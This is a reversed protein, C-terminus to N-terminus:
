LPHTITISQEQRPYVNKKVSDSIQLILNSMERWLLLDIKAASFNPEKPHCALIWILLVLLEVLHVTKKIHTYLNECGLLQTIPPSCKKSQGFLPVIELECACIFYEESAILERFSRMYSSSREISINKHAVMDCNALLHKYLIFNM